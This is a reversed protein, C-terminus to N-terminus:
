ARGLGAVCQVFWAIGAVVLPELTDPSVGVCHVPSVSELARTWRARASTFSKRKPRKMVLPGRLSRFSVLVSRFMCRLLLTSRLLVMGVEERLLTSSCMVCTRHLIGRAFSM